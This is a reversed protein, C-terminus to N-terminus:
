KQAQPPAPNVIDKTVHKPILDVLEDLTWFGHDKNIQTTPQPESYLAIQNGNVLFTRGNINAAEETALYVVMPPIHEPKSAFTENFFKEFDEENTIGMQAAKKQTSAKVEPTITMRTAANM